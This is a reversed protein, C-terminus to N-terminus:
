IYVYYQEPDLGDGGTPMINYALSSNLISCQNAPNSSIPLDGACVTPMTGHYLLKLFFTYRVGM